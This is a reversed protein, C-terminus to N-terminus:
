RMRVIRQTITRGGSELRAFYIGDGAAAGSADDGNWRLSYTGADNAGRALERVLRGRVDYVGVSVMAAHPLAYRLTVAAHSPNASALAFALEHPLGDGPAGLTNGPGLTAFGSMNGHVDFAALKYWQGVAADAALTDTTTTVLNGPGPVFAASSGRYLKYGGLDPESNAGWHLHTVGASYNAAFPAPIVPPLNDVSHGAAPLSQWAISYFNHTAEVMFTNDYTGAGISDQGTPAVFSYQAFGAAIQSAVFEWAFANAADPSMRLMGPQPADGERYSRAGARLREQALAAPVQRWIRYASISSNFPKDLYSANWTLRVKGGQDALVDKVTLGSPEANYGGWKDIHYMISNQPFYSRDYGFVFM